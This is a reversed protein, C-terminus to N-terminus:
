LWYPLSLNTVLVIFNQCHPPSKNVKYDNTLTMLCHSLLLLSFLMIALSFYRCLPNFLDNNMTPFCTLPSESDHLFFSVEFWTIIFLRIRIDRLTIMIKDRYLGMYIYYIFDYKVPSKLDVNLVHYLKGPCKSFHHLQVIANM